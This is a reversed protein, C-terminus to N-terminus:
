KKTEALKLELAPLNLVSTIDPMEKMINRREEKIEQYTNFRATIAIDYIGFLTEAREVFSKEKLKKILEENDSGLRTNILMYSPDM